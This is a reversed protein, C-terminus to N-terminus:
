VDRCAGRPRRRLGTGPETRRGAFGARLTLTPEADGFRISSGGTGPHHLKRRDYGAETVASATGEGARGETINQSRPAGCRGCRANSTYNAPRPKPWWATSTAAPLPRSISRRRPRSSRAPHSRQRYPKLKPTLRSLEDPRIGHVMGKDADRWMRHRSGLVARFHVIAARFGLEATEIQVVNIMLPKRAM